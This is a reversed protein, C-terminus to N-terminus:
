GTRSFYNTTFGSAFLSLTNYGIKQGREFFDLSDGDQTLIFRAEAKRIASEVRTLELFFLAAQDLSESTKGVIADKLGERLMTCRQRLEVSTQPVPSQETHQGMSQWAALAALYFWIDGSQRRPKLVKLGEDEILHIIGLGNQSILEQCGINPPQGSERVKELQVLITSFLPSQREFPSLERTAQAAEVM